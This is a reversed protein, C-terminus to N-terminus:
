LAIGSSRKVINTKGAFPSAVMTTGPSSAGRTVKIGPTNVNNGQLSVSSGTAIVARNTFSDVGSDRTTATPSWIHARKKTSRMGISEDVCYRRETSTIPENRMRLSWASISANRAAPAATSRMAPSNCAPRIGKTPRVSACTDASRDARM